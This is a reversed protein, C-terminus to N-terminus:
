TVPTIQFTSPMACSEQPSSKGKVSLVTSIVPAPEPM